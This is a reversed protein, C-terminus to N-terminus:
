GVPYFFLRDCRQSCFRHPHARVFVPLRPRARSPVHIGELTRVGHSRRCAGQATNDALSCQAICMPLRKSNRTALLSRPQARAGDKVSRVHNRMVSENRDGHHFCESRYAISHSNLASLPQQIDRVARSRNFTILRNRGAADARPESKGPMRFQRRDAATQVGDHGNTDSRLMSTYPRESVIGILM